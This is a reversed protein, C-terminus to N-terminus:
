PPRHSRRRPATSWRSPLTGPSTSRSTRPDRRCSSGAGSATRIRRRRIRPVVFRGASRTSRAGRKPRATLGAALVGHPGDAVLRVRGPRHGLDGLRDSDRVRGGGRHGSRHGLGPDLDAPVGLHRDAPLGGAAAPPLVGRVRDGRRRGPQRHRDVVALVVAIMFAVSAAVGIAALAFAGVGASGYLGAVLGFTAVMPIVGAVISVVIGAAVWKSLWIAGRSVPKSAVWALTGRDREAVLLGMSGFIAAIVFFQTTVASLFNITPDLSIAGGSVTADPINAIVWTNIAANAATLTMFLTTVALIVWIRSSHVWERLDKRFLPGFGAFRDGSVRGAPRAPISISATM